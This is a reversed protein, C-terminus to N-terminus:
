PIPSASSDTADLFLLRAQDPGQRTLAAPRGAFLLLLEDDNIEQYPRRVPDTEIAAIKSDGSRVVPTLGPRTVVIFAPDFQRTHIVRFSPAEIAPRRVAVEPARESIWLWSALASLVAVAALGKGARWTRRRRAHRLTQDLLATRFEEPAVENLLDNLLRESDPNPKM